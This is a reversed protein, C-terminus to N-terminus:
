RSPPPIPSTQLDGFTGPLFISSGGVAEGFAATATASSEISAVQIPDNADWNFWILAKIAPYKALLQANMTERIWQAKDGGNEQSGIEAIMIPKTPALLRLAAYSASFVEPFSQWRNGYDTGWNYGDLGVWDVYRDGPYLQDLPVTESNIVNPCWVWTVNSAGAATFIDHVHRWAAVYQAPINGNLRASWPFQWWGNMEWNFRLFLPQGWASAASAWARLYRDHAGSAIAALAFRPQDPGGADDWSGWTLLPIAGRARARAFDGAYFPQYEGDRWWSQGWHIVSVSKRARAEFADLVSLNWPVGDIYAGWYLPSPRELDAGNAVVPPRPSPSMAAVPTAAGPLAISLVVDYETSANHWEGGADQYSSFIIWSGALADPPIARTALLTVQAGPELMTAGYGPTFDIDKARISAGSAPRAAIVLNRIAIAARTRNTYTVSGMVSAGPVSVTGNLALPALVSLEGPAPPITPLTPTPVTPTVRQITSDRSCASVLLLPLVLASRLIQRRPVQM